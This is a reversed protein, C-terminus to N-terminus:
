LNSLLSTHICVPGLLHAEEGRVEVEVKFQHRMREEKGGEAAAPVESSAGQHEVVHTLSRIAWESQCSRRLDWARSNSSGKHGKLEEIHCSSAVCCLECCSKVTTCRRVCRILHASVRCWRTAWFLTERECERLVAVREHHECRIVTVCFSHLEKKLAACVGLSDELRNEALLNESRRALQNSEGVRLRSFLRCCDGSEPATYLCSSATREIGLKTTCEYEYSAQVCTM